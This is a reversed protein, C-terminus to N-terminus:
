AELTITPYHSTVGLGIVPEVALDERSEVRQWTRQVEEFNVPATKFGTTVVGGRIEDSFGKIEVLPLQGFYLIREVVINVRVELRYLTGRTRIFTEEDSLPLGDHEGPEHPYRDNNWRHAILNSVVDIPTSDARYLTMTRFDQPEIMIPGTGSFTLSFASISRDEVLVPITVYTQWDHAEADLLRYLDVGADVARNKAAETFGSPSVIAGKNAAVDKLLGIFEEVDKVNVSRKYDKCDMAIFVDYQGVRTKVSIDIDRSVGSRRGLVRINQEVTAGPALTQQIHAALDEFRKWKPKATLQSGRHSYGM